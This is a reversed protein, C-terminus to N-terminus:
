CRPTCSATTTVGAGCALARLFFPEGVELMELAAAILTARLDGQHFGPSASTDTLAPAGREPTPVAYERAIIPLSYPHSQLSCWM